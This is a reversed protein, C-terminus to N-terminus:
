GSVAPAVCALPNQLSPIISHAGPTWAVHGYCCHELCSSFFQLIDRTKPKASFTVITVLIGLPINDRPIPTPTNPFVIEVCLCVCPMRVPQTAGRLMRSAHSFVIYAVVNKSVLFHLRACNSSLFLCCATTHFLELWVSLSSLISSYQVTRIV